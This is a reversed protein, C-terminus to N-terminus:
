KSDEGQIFARRAGDQLSRASSNSSLRTRVDISVDRVDVELAEEAQRKNLGQKQLHKLIGSRVQATIKDVRRSITSEHVRLTKAIDALKRGDLHYL